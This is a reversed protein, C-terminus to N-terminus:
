IWILLTYKAVAAFNPYVRTLQELPQKVKRRWLGLPSHLLLQTGTFCTEGRELPTVTYTIKAFGGPKLTLRSPLGSVQMDLPHMDHVDLILPRKGKHTLKIQIFERVGLALSGPLKRTVEPVPLRLALIMDASTILVLGALLTWWFVSVAPYFAPIFAASLFLVCLWILRQTPM